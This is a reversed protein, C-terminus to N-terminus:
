TRRRIIIDCFFGESMERNNCKKGRTYRDFNATRIMWKIQRLTSKPQFWATLQVNDNLIIIWKNISFLRHLTSTMVNQMLLHDWNLGRIERDWVAITIQRGDGDCFTKYINIFFGILAMQHAVDVANAEIKWRWQTSRQRKGSHAAASSENRMWRSGDSLKPSSKLQRHFLEANRTDISLRIFQFQLLKLCGGEWENRYSLQM